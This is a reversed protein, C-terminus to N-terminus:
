ADDPEDEGEFAEGHAKAALRGYAELEEESLNSLDVETLHGGPRNSTDIKTTWGGLRALIFKQADLDGKVTEAEANLARNIMQAGVSALMQARGLELDDAFHRRLTDRSVGILRAIMHEGHVPFTKAYTRVQERQAETPTFPPNGIRGGNPTVVTGAGPPTGRADDARKAPKRSSPPTTAM